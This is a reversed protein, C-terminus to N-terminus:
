VLGIVLLVAVFVLATVIFGAMSLKVATEYFSAGPKMGTSLLALTM